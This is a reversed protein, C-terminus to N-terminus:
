KREGAAVVAPMQMSPSASAKVTVVADCIYRPRPPNFTEDPLWRLAGHTVGSCVGEPRVQGSLESLAARVTAALAQTTAKPGGYCDFQLEANDFVLPISIRPVGGVRQVIVFLEGSGRQAPFVTYIGDGVFPQVEAHERLYNVVLREADPVVIM